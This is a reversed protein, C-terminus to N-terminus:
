LIKYEGNLIQTFLEQAQRKIPRVTVESINSKESQNIIMNVIYSIDKPDLAYSLDYRNAVKNFFPTNVLGPRISCVKIEYKKLESWLVQSFGALGFKSSVYAAGYEFGKTAAISEINIIQGKRQLIMDKIVEKTLCITSVLNVDITKQLDKIDLKEIPGFAGIGACNILIDIFGHTKYIKKYVSEISGIDELDVYYAYSKEDGIESCINKLEEISRGLLIVKINEKALNRAISFGIGSSGGTIIAKKM